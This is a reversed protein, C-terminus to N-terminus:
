AAVAERHEEHHHERCLWRVELPKSYDEHHAQVPGACGRGEQECPGRMLRGDRLANAVASRALYKQRNRARYDRQHQAQARRRAASKSRRRDAARVKARDRRALLSRRQAPTLARYAERAKVRAV